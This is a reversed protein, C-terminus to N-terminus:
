GVVESALLPRYTEAFDSDHEVLEGHLSLATAATFGVEVFRGILSRPSEHSFNVVRNCTSRGAWVRSEASQALKRTKAEGEVLVEMTKGVRTAYRVEAIKLQYQLLENLRRNKVEDPVDDPLKSARTGPRPSYAFAYINDYQM